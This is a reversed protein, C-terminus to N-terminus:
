FITVVLLTLVNIENERALESNCKRIVRIPVKVVAEQITDRYVRGRGQIFAISTLRVLGSVVLLLSTSKILLLNRTNPDSM